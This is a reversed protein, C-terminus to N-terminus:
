RRPPPTPARWIRDWAAWPTGGPHFGRLADRAADVQALDILPLVPLDDVILSQAHTYFKRRENRSLRDTGQELIDDVTSNAYGTPGTGGAAVSLYLAAAVTDPDAAPPSLLLLADWEGGTWARGFAAPSDAAELLTEVGLAKWGERIIAAAAGLGPAGLPYLLRLSLRPSSERVPHGAQTFLAGARAPNLAFRRTYDLAPSQAWRLAPHLPGRAVAGWGLWANEILRQRNVGMALAHRARRDALPPRRTNFALLATRPLGAGEHLRVDTNIRLAALAEPGLLGAAVHDVDGAELAQLRRAPDPIVRAQVRDLYPLGPRFYDRNRVLEIRGDAEREWQFPGSGVPTPASAGPLGEGGYVHRPLIPVEACTLLALLPAYPRSLRLVVTGDGSADVGVLRGLARASRPNYRAALQVSFAVDAATLPRRDHWRVGPELNLTLRLGDPSWAWARALEPQPELRRDLTVLGNWVLCGLATTEPAESL